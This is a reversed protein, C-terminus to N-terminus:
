RGFDDGLDNSRDTRKREEIRQAKAEPTDLKAAAKAFPSVKKGAEPESKTFTRADDNARQGTVEYPKFTTREAEVKAAQARAQEARELAVTDPAAPTNGYSRAGQPRPAPAAGQVHPREAEQQRRDPKPATKAFDRRTQHAKPQMRDLPSMKAAGQARPEYPKLGHAEREANHRAIMAARQEDQARIMAAFDARPMTDVALQARAFTGESIQKGIARREAEHKAQLGAKALEAQALEMAARHMQEAAAQQQGRAAEPTTALGIRQLLGGIVGKRRQEAKQAARAAKGAAQAAREARQRAMNATNEIAAREAKQRQFVAKWTPKHTVKDAAKERAYAARFAAKYAAKHAAAEAKATKWQDGHTARMDGREASQRAFIADREAKIEAWARRQGKAAKDMAARPIADAKDQAEGKAWAEANKERREIIVGGNQREYELAWEQMKHRDNSLSFRKGTEPDVLNVMLHLHSKGNDDHAVILAQAKDLGVARLLDRAAELQHDAEPQQGEAWSMVLHFVPGDKAKRGGAKVGAAAKLDDAHIDVAAMIKAATKPTTAGVNEISSWLARHQGDKPSTLYAALKTFSRGRAVNRVIM